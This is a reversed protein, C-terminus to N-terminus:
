PQRFFANLAIFLISMPFFLVSFLYHLLKKWFSCIKKSSMIFVFPIFFVWLARPISAHFFYKTKAHIAPFFEHALSPSRSYDFCITQTPFFILFHLFCVFFQSSFCWGALVVQLIFSNEYIEGNALMGAWNWKYNKWNNKNSSRGSKRKM